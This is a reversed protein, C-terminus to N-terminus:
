CLARGGGATCRLRRVMATSSTALGEMMKRSHAGAPRGCAEWAAWVAASHEFPCTCTSASLRLCALTSSPGVAANPRQCVRGSHKRSGRRGGAALGGGAQIRAGGGDDHAGHAVSHVCAACHNGGHVLGAQFDKLHSAAAQQGALARQVQMGDCGSPLCRAPGPGHLVVPPQCSADGAEHRRRGDM